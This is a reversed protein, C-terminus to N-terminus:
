QTKGAAPQLYHGSDLFELIKQSVFAHGEPTWHRGQSPYTFRNTVVVYPIGQDKLFRELEPNARQVGVIFRAGRSEIFRRMDAVIAYTPSTRAIYEPPATSNFYPLAILRVLSSRALVPHRAFFYDKSTPVPVGRLTLGAGDVTFYPKYYKGYRVNRANDDDDNDGDFLLFVIQPRYFDYQRRLLLYEQDTGYGSVGLNYISWDTLNPRLRETFREPEEVDYGWVYSDGLVIIRPKTGIVHEVDRFGRSNHEVHITRSGKFVRRSNAIPFWGLESDYRYTLNREDRKIAFREPLFIGIAVDAIAIWLITWSLVLLSKIWKSAPVSM